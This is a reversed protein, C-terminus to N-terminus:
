RSISIGLIGMIVENAVAEISVSDLIKAPNLRIRHVNAHNFNNFYYTESEKQLAPVLWDDISDPYVLKAVETSGDAYKVTIRVNEVQTQMANTTAIYLIALEQASGDLPFTQSTPFNDWLSVCAVNEKEAPTLFPIGSRTRILGGASRLSSDDVFLGNHDYHNWEWAYRGNPFVGISYADPRPSLYEQKHIETMNCNFFKSIDVPTFPKEEMPEQRVERVLIEYDAALWADYEGACVRIFLTHHGAIDKAKAYVKSGVVEINELTGNMDKCEMLRGNLVEFCVENGAM